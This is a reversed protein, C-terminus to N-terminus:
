TRKFNSTNDLEDSLYKSQLSFFNHYKNKYVFIIYFYTIHMNLCTKFSFPVFIVTLYYEVQLITFNSINRFNKGSYSRTVM